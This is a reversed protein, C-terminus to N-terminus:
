SPGESRITVKPPHTIPETQGQGPATSDSTITKDDVDVSNMELDRKAVPVRRRSRRRRRRISKYVSLVPKMFAQACVTLNM